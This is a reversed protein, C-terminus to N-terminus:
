HSPPWNKRSSFMKAGAPGVPEEADAYSNRSPEGHGRAFRASALSPVALRGRREIRRRCRLAKRVHVTTCLARHNLGIWKM